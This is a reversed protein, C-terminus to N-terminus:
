GTTVKFLADQERHTFWWSDPQRNRRRAGDDGLHSTLGAPLDQFGRVTGQETEEGCPEAAGKRLPGAVATVHHTYKSLETLM